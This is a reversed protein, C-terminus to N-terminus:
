LDQGPEKVIEALGMDIYQGGTTQRCHIAVQNRGVKLAKVAETSLKVTEYSTTYGSLTSVLKGNIYVNADEDHHIFLRPDDPVEKLEFTCRLWIDSSNWETRVVAGPTGKTGFGGPGAKWGSDDFDTNQWAGEPRSTTYKWIRGERQSTEVIRKIIPPPLHLSRNAKAVAASDMKVVARDYTMLGNVEVEVDTTQTYVAAALGQGVLQHLKDILAVYADTLEGRSKYSRYGWNKESQWTHGTLPLGLGGFEGLV